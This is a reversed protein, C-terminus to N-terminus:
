EQAVLAGYFMRRSQILRGLKSLKINWCGNDQVWLGEQEFILM